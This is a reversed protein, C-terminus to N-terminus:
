RRFARGLFEIVDQEAKKAAVLNSGVTAGRSRCPGMKAELAKLTKFREDTSLLRYGWTDIDIEFPPCKASQQVKPAWAHFNTVGDFGHYANSYVITTVDVAARKMEAAYDLCPTIPTYDDKEGLAMMIPVGTM